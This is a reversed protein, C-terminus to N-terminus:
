VLEFPLLMSFGAEKPLYVGANTAKQISVTFKFVIAPLSFPLLQCRLIIRIRQNPFKQKHFSRGERQNKTEIPSACAFCFSNGFGQLLSDGLLASTDMRLHVEVSGLSQFM